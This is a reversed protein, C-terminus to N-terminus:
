LGAIWEEAATIAADRTSARFTPNVQTRDRTPQTHHCRAFYDAGNNIVEVYTGDVIEPWHENQTPIHLVAMEGGRKYAGLDAVPRPQADDTCPRYLGDIPEFIAWSGPNDLAAYRTPYVDTQIQAFVQATAM